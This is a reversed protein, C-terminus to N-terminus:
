SICCLADKMQEDMWSFFKLSGMSSVKVIDNMRDFCSACYRRGISRVSSDFREGVKVEDHTLILWCSKLQNCSSPFYASTNLRRKSPQPPRWRVVSDNSSWVNKFEEDIIVSIVLYQVLIM